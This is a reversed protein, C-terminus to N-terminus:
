EILHEEMFKKWAEAIEEAEHIARLTAPSLTGNCDNNRKHCRKTMGKGGRGYFIKTHTKTKTKLM